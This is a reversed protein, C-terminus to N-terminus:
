LHLNMQNRLFVQDGVVDAFKDPIAIRRVRPFRDIIGDAFMDCLKEAIASGVGCSKQHEELTILGAQHTQIIQKLAIESIPKIFPLSYLSYPLGKEGIQSMAAGVINGCGLVATENKADVFVPIIDGPIISDINEKHVYKEGAKGLRLYVPGNYLASFHTLAGAEYPDCPTAVLMNPITRLVGIDETAQHTIGQPGYAYGAGVSVIKVDLAHYAIDNRIQEICRLTSFNAISYIYVKKGSAALGAAIGAMNQEAIGVNIFREPFLDAFPEVVHYGLDGVLLYINDNIRAEEVLQNIFKTRM